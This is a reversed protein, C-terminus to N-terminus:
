AAFLVISPKPAMASLELWFGNNYSEIGVSSVREIWVPNDLEEGYVVFEMEDYEDNYRLFCRKVYVDYGSDRVRAVFGNEIGTNIIHTIELLFDQIEDVKTPVPPLVFM